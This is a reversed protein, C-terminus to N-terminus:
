DRDAPHGRETNRKSASTGQPKLDEMTPEPKELLPYLVIFAGAIERDRELPHLVLRVEVESGDRHRLFGQSHVPLLGELLENLQLTPLVSQAGLHQLLSEAELDHDSFGLLATAEPTILVARGDADLFILPEKLREALTHLQQRNRLLDQYLTRIENQHFRLSRDLRFETEDLADFEDGLRELFAKWANVDPPSSCDQGTERLL